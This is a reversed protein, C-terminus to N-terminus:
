TIVHLCLLLHFAANAKETTVSLGFINALPIFNNELKQSLAASCVTEMHVIYLLLSCFVFPLDFCILVKMKMHQGIISPSKHM